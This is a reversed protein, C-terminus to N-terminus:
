RSLPLSAACLKEKVVPDRVAFVKYPQLGFSTPMEVIADEIPKTDIPRGPVFKKVPHRWELNKLFSSM